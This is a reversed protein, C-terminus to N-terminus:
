LGLLGLERADRCRHSIQIYPAGDIIIVPGIIYEKGDEQKTCLRSFVAGVEIDADADAIRADQAPPADAAAADGNGEPDNLMAQLVHRRQHSHRPRHRM